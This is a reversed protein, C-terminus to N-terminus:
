IWVMSRVYFLITVRTGFKERRSKISIRIINTTNLGSINIILHGRNQDQAERRDEQQGDGRNQQDEAPLSYSYTTEEKKRHQYLNISTVLMVKGTKVDM